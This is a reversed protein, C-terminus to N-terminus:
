EVDPSYYAGLNAVKDIMEARSAFSLILNGVVDGATKFPPVKAGPEIYLNEDVINERFSPDVYTGRFIGGRRSHLMYCAFCRQSRSKALDLVYERDLCGEVVAAILDVGTQHRIASPIFNGGCRPGIEIIFPQGDCTIFADVNFPGKEYGTRALITEVTRAVLDLSMASHVSPFTEAFPCLLGDEEHFHGDGFELFVLRSRDMYGDGCIQSGSKRIFEEVILEGSRSESFAYALAADIDAASRVVSVGKSGSSDAPKVVATGGCDGIFSAAAGINARDFVKYRQQQLGTDDLFKRFLPKRTLRDVTEVCAGPLGLTRAVLAATLASADSGFSLIGDIARSRALELVAGHDVTSVNHSEHALRHGPNEPRNDCTLAYYGARRAYEIPPVQFHAAGLFLVRKM